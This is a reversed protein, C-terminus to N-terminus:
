QQTQILQGLCTDVRQQTAVAAVHVVSFITGRNSYWQHIQTQQQAFTNISGNGLIIEPIDIWKATTAYCRSYMKCQEGRFPEQKLCRHKTKGEEGQSTRVTNVRLSM